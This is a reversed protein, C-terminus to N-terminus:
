RSIKIVDIGAAKAAMVGQSSDEIVLTQSLPAGLFKAAKAFIEPSPKPQLGDTVSVIFDFYPLLNTALLSAQAIQKEANTGVALPFKHHLFKVLNGTEPIPSVRDSIEVFRSISHAAAEDNDFGIAFDRAFEQFLSSRDMGTRALYWDRDLKYGQAAAAEHFSTFHVDASEVLTGDCDFIFSKYGLQLFDNQWTESTIESKGLASHLEARIM